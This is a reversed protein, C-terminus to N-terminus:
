GIDLRISLCVYGDKMGLGSHIHRIAFSVFEKGDPNWFVLLDGVQYDRDNYRIEATKVKSLLNKLYNPEIKLEHIMM